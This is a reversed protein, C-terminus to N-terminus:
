GSTLKPHTERDASLLQESYSILYSRRGGVQVATSEREALVSGEALSAQSSAGHLCRSAM